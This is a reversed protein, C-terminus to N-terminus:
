LSYVDPLKRRFMSLTAVLFVRLVCVRELLFNIYEAICSTFDSYINARDGFMCSVLMKVLHDNKM